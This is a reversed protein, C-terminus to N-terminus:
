DITFNLKIFFCSKQNFISPTKLNIINTNLFNFSRHSISDFRCNIKIKITKEIVPESAAQTDLGKASSNPILSEKKGLHNNVM